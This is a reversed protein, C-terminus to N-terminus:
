SIIIYKGRVPLTELYAEVENQKTETKIIALQGGMAICALNAANFEATTIPM